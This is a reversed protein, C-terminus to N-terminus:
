IQAGDRNSHSSFHQCARFTLFRSAEADSFTTVSLLKEVIHSAFPDTCVIRLDQALVDMYRKIVDENAYDLLQELIRSVLQNACLM